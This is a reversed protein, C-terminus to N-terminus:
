RPPGNRSPLVPKDQRPKRGHRRDLVEALGVDPDSEGESQNTIDDTEKGQLLEMEAESLEVAADAAPPSVAAAGGVAPSAPVEAATTDTTDTAAPSPATTAASASVRQGRPKPAEPRYPEAQDAQALLATKWASWDGALAHPHAAEPVAQLLKEHRLVAALFGANNQSKRVFCSQFQKAAIPQGASLGHVASEIRAFPVIERSFGGSSDNAVLTLYLQRRAADTLIRYHVDGQSRAGSKPAKASKLSLYSEPLAPSPSSETPNM